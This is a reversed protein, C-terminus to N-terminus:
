QENKQDFKHDNPCTSVMVNVEGCIHCFMRKPRKCDRWYHGFQRCNWCLINSQEDSQTQESGKQNVKPEQRQKTRNRHSTIANIDEDSGETEEQSEVGECLNHVNYTRKTTYTQYLAKDLDFCLSTLTDLNVHDLDIFALHPRYCDRMNELIINLKYRDNLPKTLKQTLREIEAVYAIFTEQPMQKRDRIQKETVRDTNPMGFRLKIMYKFMKWSTFKTSYTYYWVEAASDPRLLFNIQGLLETEPTRNNNALTEVKRIFEEVSPGRSDGSYRIPWKDVPVKSQRSERFEAIRQVPNYNRVGANDWGGSAGGNNNINSRPLQQNINRHDEQVEQDMRRERRGSNDYSAHSAVSNRELM